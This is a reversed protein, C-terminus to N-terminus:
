TPQKNEAELRERLERKVIKGNTNRPLADVFIFRRPRKDPPLSARTHAVLMAETVGPAVVVFAAIEEGLKDDAFGTVAVERIGDMTGIIGEVEAPFVNAGGRIIMDSSRGRVMLFGDGDISGLDGTYVWGDRIRDGTERRRDKYFGDIAGATRLRIMGIEGPPVMNGDADVTEIRAVSFIRGETEPRALLDAGSLIAITGVPSSSFATTFTPTLYRAAGLKDAAPTGAGGVLLERLKPLVPTSTEGVVQLMERLTSPVLLCFGIDLRNIKEILESAGFTPPHFIVETGRMLSGFTHHRSASFSLPLPNLYRTERPYPGELGYSYLRIALARHSMVLGLPEGTTGSTLSIFAPHNGDRTEKPPTVPKTSARAVCDRLVIAPYTAGPLSRDLIIANMDFAVALRNLDDVRSRFDMTVVVADLMWLAVMTVITDIGDRVALGVQDGAKIGEDSLAHALQASQEMWQRFSVKRRGDDDSMATRNGYYRASGMLLDAVSVRPTEM